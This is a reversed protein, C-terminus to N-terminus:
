SRCSVLDRGLFSMSRGVFSEIDINCESELLVLVKGQSFLPGRLILSMELLSVSGLKAPNPDRAKVYYYAEKNCLAFVQKYAGPTPQFVVFLV